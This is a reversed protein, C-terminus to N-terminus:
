LSAAGATLGRKNSAAKANKTTKAAKPALSKSGSWASYYKVNGVTKFTRVQVHYKTKAKLGKITTKVTKANKVTVTKAGKFDAKAAYRVQYGSTQTAQKKWQVTLSGAGATLKQVATGKPNVKFTASATGTFKGKGTVTVKYAGIGKVAKNYKVTFDANKKLAKGNLKVTVAPTLAKGTYTVDKVTVSAKKLSTVAPKSGAKKAADFADQAAKVAATQADVRNQTAAADGAAARAEAIAAALAEHAEPAAWKKSTAVDKGDKSQATAAKDAEAAEIAASLDIKAVNATAKEKKFAKVAENLALRAADINSQTADTRDLAEQAAAIASALAEHAATTAYVTGDPVDNGDDSVATGEKEKSASAIASKLADRDVDTKVVIKTIDSVSRWGGMQLTGEGDQYAGIILRFEDQPAETLAASLAAAATTSSDWNKTTCTSWAIAAPVEYKNSSTNSGATADPYFWKLESVFGYTTDAWKEGPAYIESGSWIELEYGEKWTVGAAAFVADLTAYSDPKAAKVTGGSKGSYQMAAIKDGNAKALEELDSIKFTTSKGEHNVVELMDKDSRNVVIKRVDKAARWGPAQVAGKADQWGGVITRLCGTTPATADGKMVADLAAGAETEGAYSAEYVEWAIAFPMEQAGAANNPNGETAHPYFWKMKSLADYSTDAWKAGPAYMTGAEDWIELDYGSKWSAGADALVNELQVYGSKKAALAKNKYQMKVTSNNNKAAIAALDAQSYEKATGYQNVVTLVTGEKELNVTIVAAESPTVTGSAPAYGEASVTYAYETDGALKYTAGSEAAVVEDGQKVVATFGALAKGNADAGVFTVTYLGKVLKVAVADGSTPTFEGVTVTDYGAKSVTYSYAAGHALTYTGDANAEVAEDGQKVEVTAGAVPAGSDKDAVDFRIQYYRMLQVDVKNLAGADHEEPTPTVEGDVSGYGEAMVAYHFTKDERLSYVGGEAAVEEGLRDTVKVAPHEVALGDTGKVDFAFRYDSAFYEGEWALRPFGKNARPPNEPSYADGLETADEPDMMSYPLEAEFASTLGRPEPKASKSSAAVFASEAGLYYNNEAYPRTVAAAIGGYYSSSSDFFMKIAGINYCREIVNQGDYGYAYGVIGGVLTDYADETGSLVIDGANYSDAIDVATYSYGVLGGFNQGNCTENKIAGKNYSESIKVPGEAYAVLGGFGYGFRSPASTTVSAENGVREVTLAPGEMNFGVVGAANYSDTTVSGQVTFNRLTAGKSVGVLGLNNDYATVAGEDTTVQRSAGIVNLGAITAHEAAELTGEFPHGSTGIPEWAEGGLDIVHNADGVLEATGPGFTGDNVADRLRKLDDAGKVEFADIEVSGEDSEAVEGKFGDKVNVATCKFYQAGLGIRQPKFTATTATPNEAADVVKWSYDDGDPVLAHWQFEVTGGDTVSAAATFEIDDMQTKREVIKAPQVTFTPKEPAAALYTVTAADSAISKAEAPEGFTNTVVCFYAHEGAAADAPTALTASTAGEVVKDTEPNPASGDAAEFWQYSLEGDHGPEAAGKPTIATVSLEVGKSGTVGYAGEPCAPQVTIVPQGAERDIEWEFGPTVQKLRAGSVWEVGSEQAVKTNLAAEFGVDGYSEAGALQAATVSHFNNPRKWSDGCVYFSQYNEAWEPHEADLARYYNSRAATVESESYPAMNAFYSMYFSTAYDGADFCNFIRVYFSRMGSRNGSEGVIGGGWLSAMAGSNYCSAVLPTQDKSYKEYSEGKSAGLIGAVANYESNTVDGKNYCGIIRVGDGAYTQALIGAAFKCNDTGTIAAENGVNRITATGDAFAVAGAVNQGKGKVSGKVRFNRVEANGGLDGFVAVCDHSKNRNLSVTFSHYGGDFTGKFDHEGDGCITFSPSGSKVFDLDCALEVTKGEYDNGGNVDAAFANWEAESAIVVDADAWAEGALAVAGTWTLGCAFAFAVLARLARGQWASGVM